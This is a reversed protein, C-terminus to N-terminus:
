KKKCNKCIGYVEFIHNTIEFDDFQSQLNFFDIPCLDINKTKGCKNCILHHHHEGTSISFLTQNNESDVKCILSLDDLMDLVRYITSFNIKPYIIKTKEFISEASLFTGHNSTLVQIVAKRQPTLKYESKKITNIVTSELM